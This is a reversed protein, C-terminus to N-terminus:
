RTVKTMDQRLHERLVSLNFPKLVVRSIHGDKVALNLDYQDACGGTMLIRVSEPNTEHVRRLFDLGNMGLLTFSAIVIDFPGETKARELGEEGTRVTVVQFQDKLILEMMERMSSDTDAFLIKAMPVDFNSENM